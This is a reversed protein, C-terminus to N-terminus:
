LILLIFRQLNNFYDILIFFRFLHGRFKMKNGFRDTIKEVKFNTLSLIAYKFNFDFNWYNKQFKNMKLIINKLECKKLLRRM